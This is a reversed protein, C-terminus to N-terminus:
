EDPLDRIAQPLDPDVYGLVGRGEELRNDVDMQVYEHDIEWFKEMQERSVELLPRVLRFGVGRAPDDTYWWPSKPVNPDTDKWVKWDSGLRSASRCEEAPFQWSGGRVVRPDESVPRVWDVTGDIVGDAAEYDALGDLVWEAANGHMDFLGYPNPTKLGVQRTGDDDTNGAFWGYQSLLEPDDGFHYATQSGGRCAYEWEAETPLRFQQGLVLSLWKSYQKASYQTVTVAPQKPDEGYEYTFDPEYLPTPATVADLRNEETVVRDTNQLSKFYGYLAMFEKYEAWTVECRAMWFPQVRVKRVPGEQTGRGPESEPSGMLYEGGPIPEMMFTVESNPLTVQYPVMWGRDTQVARGSEPKESVLGPTNQAVANATLLSCAAICACSFVSDAVRNM